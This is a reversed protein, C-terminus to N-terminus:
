KKCTSNGLIDRWFLNYLKKVSWSMEVRESHISDQRYSSGSFMADCM